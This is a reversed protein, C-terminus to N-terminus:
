DRHGCPVSHNVTMVCTCYEQIKGTQTLQQRSPRPGQALDKPRARWSKSKGAFRAEENSLRIKFDELKLKKIKCVLM